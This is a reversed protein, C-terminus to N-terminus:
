STQRENVLGQELEDVNRYILSLARMIERVNVDNYDALSRIHQVERVIHDIKKDQETTLRTMDDIQRFMEQGVKVGLERRLEENERRLEQLTRNLDALTRKMENVDSEVRDIDAM